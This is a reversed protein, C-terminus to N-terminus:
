NLITTSIIKIDPDFDFVYNKNLSIYKKDSQKSIKTQNSPNALSHPSTKPLSLLFNEKLQSSLSTRRDTLAVHMELLAHVLHVRAEQTDVVM